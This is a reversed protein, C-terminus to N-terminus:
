YQGTAELKSAAKEVLERAHDFPNPRDIQHADNQGPAMNVYDVTVDNIKDNGGIFDWPEGLVLDPLGDAISKVALPQDKSKFRGEEATFEPLMVAVGKGLAFRRGSETAVIALDPGGRADLHRTNKHFKWVMSDGPTRYGLAVRGDAFQIREETPGAGIKNIKAPDPNNTEISM